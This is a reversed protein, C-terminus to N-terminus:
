LLDIPQNRYDEFYIKSLVLKTKISLESSDSMYITLKSNVGRRHFMWILPCYGFQSEIFAKLLVRNRNTCM